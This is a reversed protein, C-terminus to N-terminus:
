EAALTKEERSNIENIFEKIINKFNLAFSQFKSKKKLIKRM